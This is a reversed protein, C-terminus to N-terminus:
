EVFRRGTDVWFRAAIKPIFNMMEGAVAQRNQDRGMVHVLRLAAMPESVNGIAFQQRVARDIVHDRM